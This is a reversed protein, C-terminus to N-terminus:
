WFLRWHFRRDAFGTASRIQTLGHEGLLRRFREQAAEAEEETMAPGAGGITLPLIETLVDLWWHTPIGAIADLDGLSLGNLGPPLHRELDRFAPLAPPEAPTPQAAAQLLGTARAEGDRGGAVVFIGNGAGIWLDYQAFNGYRRLPVDGVQVTEAPSLFPKANPLLKDLGARFKVDDALGFAIAWTAEFMRDYDEFPSGVILVDDTMHATLEDLLDIGLEEKAEARADKEGGGRVGADVVRLITTALAHCDFRGVSYVSSREPLLRALSSVGVSAPLFAGFLGREDSTFSLSTDLLLRPGAAALDIQLEGLSDFGLATLVANEEADADRGSTDAILRALDFRIRLAPSGPAPKGITPPRAALWDALALGTALDDVHGGALVLRGGDVFPATIAGEDVARVQLPKATGTAASWEGPIGRELLRQLDAALAQLDTRGDDDVVLAFAAAQERTRRGQHFRAALRLTGRHALLRDRAATFQVEDGVLQQWADLLTGTMPQWYGRGEESALMSGVNTPGLRARWGDPGVTEVVIHPAVPQADTAPASQAALSLPPLSLALLAAALPKAVIM